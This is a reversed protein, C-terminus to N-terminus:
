DLIRLVDVHRLQGVRLRIGRADLGAVLLPLHQDADAGMEAADRDDMLPEVVAVETGAMARDVVARAADPLSRRRLVQRYRGVFTEGVGLDPDTSSRAVKFGALNIM